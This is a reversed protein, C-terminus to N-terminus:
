ICGSSRQLHYKSTLDVVSHYVVDNYGYYFLIDNSVSYALDTINQLSSTLCKNLIEDYRLVRRLLKYILETRKDRQISYQYFIPVNHMYENTEISLNDNVLNYNYTDVNFSDKYKFVNSNLELEFPYIKINCDLNFIILNTIINIYTDDKYLNAFAPEFLFIGIFMDKCIQKLLSLKSIASNNLYNNCETVIRNLNIYKLLDITENDLKNLNINFTFKNNLQHDIIYNLMTKFRDPDRNIEYDMLIVEINPYHQGLYKLVDNYGELSDLYSPSCLNGANCSSCARTCGYSLSLFIKNQCINLEKNSLKINWPKTFYLSIDHQDNYENKYTIYSEIAPGIFGTCMILKNDLYDSSIHNMLQLLPNSDNNNKTGGILVTANYKRILFIALMILVVNLAEDEMHILYCDAKEISDFYTNLSEFSIVNNNAVDYLKDTGVWSCNDLNYYLPNGSKYNVIMQMVYDICPTTAMAYQNTDEINFYDCLKRVDFRLEPIINNYKDVYQIYRFPLHIYNFDISHLLDKVNLYQKAENFIKYTYGNNVFMRITKNM